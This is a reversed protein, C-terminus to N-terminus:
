TKKPLRCCLDMRLRSECLMVTCIELNPPSDLRNELTRFRNYATTYSDGLLTPRDRFSLSVTGYLSGIRASGLLRSYMDAGVIGDIPPPVSFTQDALDVNELHKTFNTDVPLSPLDNTIRDLVLCDM